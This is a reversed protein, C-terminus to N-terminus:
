GMAKLMPLYVLCLVVSWILLVGISALFMTHSRAYVKRVVAAMVPVSLFPLLILFVWTHYKQRMTVIRRARKISKKTLPKGSHILWDSLLFFLAFGLSSGIATAALTSAFGLGSAYAVPPVFMLKVTSLLLMLLFKWYM